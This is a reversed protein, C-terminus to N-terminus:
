LSVIWYLGPRKWARFSSGFFATRRSGDGSADWPRIGFTPDCGFFRGDVVAVSRGGSFRALTDGADDAALEGAEARDPYTGRGGAPGGGVIGGGGGLLRGGLRFVSELGPEPAPGELAPEDLAPGDRRPGRGRGRGGPAGGPRM